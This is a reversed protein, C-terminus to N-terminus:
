FLISALLRALEPRLLSPCLLFTLASVMKSERSNIVVVGNAFEVSEIWYNVWRLEDLIVRKLDDTLYRDDIGVKTITTNSRLTSILQYIDEQDRPVVNLYRLSFNNLEELLKSLSVIGLDLTKLVGKKAHETIKRLDENDIRCDTGNRVKLVKLTDPYGDVKGLQHFLELKSKSIPWVGYGFDSIIVRKMRLSKLNPLALIEAQHEPTLYCMYMDLEIIQAPDECVSFNCSRKFALPEDSHQFQLVFM